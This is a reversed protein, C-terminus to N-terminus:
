KNLKILELAKEMEVDRKAILDEETIKTEYDPFIGRGEEATKYTPVIKMLGLRLNIESNKLRVLPTRGAVTGNYAGGTEQGIFVARKSGKLNSSLICSASFSGGNILVYVTGDFATARPKRKKHEPGRYYYKGDSGKRVKFFTYTYYIPAGILAATKRLLNGGKFYDAKFLSTKGAVETQDCFVYPEKSLFSYLFSIESLRGGPNDRLDIILNKVKKQKLTLFADRYFDDFHGISFGRIKMVATTSDTATISFSRNYTDTAANYGFYSNKRNKEKLQKKREKKSINTATNKEEKAAKAERILVKQFVSDRFSLTYAVSDQLGHEVTYYSSFINGFREDIFTRNYGDSTYLRSYKAYLDAVSEKNIALVRTGVAITSDKSLNKTIYLKGNLWQFELQSFPGKGKSNLIKTEVKSLRKRPPVVSLHGQRISNVVPALQTYFEYPKMPKSLTNTFSDIKFKFDSESIYWDLDAQYKKLNRYAKKVDAKLENPQVDTNIKSNYQQTSGCSALLVAAAFLIRKM